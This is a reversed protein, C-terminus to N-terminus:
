QAGAQPEVARPRVAETIAAGIERGMVGAAPVLVWGWWADLHLITFVIAYVAATASVIRLVPGIRSRRIFPKWFSLM